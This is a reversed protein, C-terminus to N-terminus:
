TENRPKYSEFIAGIQVCLKALPSLCDQPFALLAFGAVVETMIGSVTFKLPCLRVFAVVEV